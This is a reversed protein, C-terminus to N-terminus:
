GDAGGVTETGDLDPIGEAVVEGADEVRAARGARRDVFWRVVPDIAFGLGVGVVVGVVMALLPNHGLWVGAVTGLAVSYLSWMVAAIAALGAFTRRPFGIAGATMNVAVRGIPVYRAALIFSAGRRDLAREAWALTRQQREGQMFVMSRVPIRTGISYAILDGTFAGASAVLIVLWLAPEGAAAALSALAIVVSESPVPPFFGDITVFVYLVVFLWPSGVLALAWDAAAPLWDEIVTSRGDRRGRGVVTRGRHPGSM